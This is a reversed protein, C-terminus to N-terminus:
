PCAQTQGPVEANQYATTVLDIIDGGGGPVLFNTVNSNAFVVVPVSCNLVGAYTAVTGLSDSVGGNKCVNLPDNGCNRGVNNDWGLFNTRMNQKQANTLLVNGKAIDNIVKFVEAASMVWGGGGCGLTWDGWDTGPSTGAPSSYTVVDTPGSPAAKCLVGGRGTGVGLPAFVHSNMYSIYLGASIAPRLADAIPSLLNFPGPPINLLQPGYGEMIPLMERFIAFNCNNYAYHSPPSPVGSEILSKLDSYTANPCGASGNGFGSTQNLMYLFELQNVGMAPPSVWDIYIYPLILSNTTLNLTQLEQLVGITTLTKSVSAINMFLDPAMSTAPPNAATRAMGGYLPPRNGVIVVYGTVNGNLSNAVATALTNESICTTPDCDVTDPPTSCQVEINTVNANHITGSGSTVTCTQGSPQQQVTVSYSDGNLLNADITFPGNGQSSTNSGSVLTVSNTGSLGSVTGRLDFTKCIPLAQCRAVCTQYVAEGTDSVCCCRVACSAGSRCQQAWVPQALGCWVIALAGTFFWRSSNM